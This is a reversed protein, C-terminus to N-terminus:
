HVSQLRAAERTMRMRIMDNIQGTADVVRVQTKFRDFPVDRLTEVFAANVFSTTASVVGAFSLCVPQRSRLAQLLAGRLREGESATDGAGAIDIVRLTVM